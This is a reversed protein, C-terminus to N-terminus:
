RSGLMLRSQMQEILMTCSTCVLEWIQSSDDSLGPMGLLTVIHCCPLLDHKLHSSALNLVHQSLRQLYHQCPEGLDQSPLAGQRVQWIYGKPPQTYFSDLLAEAAQTAKLLDAKEEETVGAASRYPDMGSSLLAHDLLTTGYMLVNSAVGVNVFGSEAERYM